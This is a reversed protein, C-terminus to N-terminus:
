DHVGAEGGSDFGLARLLELGGAGRSSDESRKDWADRSERAIIPLKKGSLGANLPALEKLDADTVRDSFFIVRVM